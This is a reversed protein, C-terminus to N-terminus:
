GAPAKVTITCSQDKKAKVAAEAYGSLVAQNTRM